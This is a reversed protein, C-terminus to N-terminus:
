TVPWFVENGEIERFCETATLGRYVTFWRKTHRFYALEFRGFRTMTLRTKRVVFHGQPRGKGTRYRVCLYFPKGRWESFVEVPLQVPWSGGRSARSLSPVENAALREGV